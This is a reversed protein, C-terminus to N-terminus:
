FLPPYLDDNVYTIKYVIGVSRMEKDIDSMEASGTEARITNQVAAPLAGFRAGMSTLPAHYAEVRDSTACGSWLLAAIPVSCLIFAHFLHQASLATRAGTRRTNKDDAM